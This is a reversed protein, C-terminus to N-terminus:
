GDASGLAERYLSLQELALSGWSLSRRIDDATARARTALDPRLMDAIATAIGDVDGYAVIRSTDSPLWEAVGCRDSVVVPLGLAAAEAAANGFNETASPLCFADAAAFAEAKRRGFAGEPVIRVRQSSLAGLRALTGDGDDPGVIALWVGDLRGVAAVLDTLGKKRTIRGLSLVLPAEAPIGHAARFAGRDPLPLLEEVDIGNARLRIREQPIGDEELESAELASTAIVTTAGAVLHDGVFRDFAAKLRVSRIRRRHMGVPELLYPVGARRAARAAASGVPDRYGLVHVVDASRAAARVESTSRPIPTGHFSTLVPLSIRDQREHYGGDSTGAVTVDTDLETLADSLQEAKLAPGGFERRLSPVTMLARV